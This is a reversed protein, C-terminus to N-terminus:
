ALQMLKAATYAPSFGFAETNEGRVTFVGFGQLPDLGEAFGIVAELDRLFIQRETAGTIEETGPLRTKRYETHCIKGAVQGGQLLGLLGGCIPDIGGASGVCRFAFGEPGSDALQEQSRFSSHILLFHVGRLSHM